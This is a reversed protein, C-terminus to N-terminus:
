CGPLAIPEISLVSDIPDTGIDRQWSRKLIQAATPFDLRSVGASFSELGTRRRLPRARESRRRSRRCSWNPLGHELRSGAAALQGADATLPTESIASGGLPMTEASNQLVVLYSRAGDAGLVAPLTQLMPATTQLM